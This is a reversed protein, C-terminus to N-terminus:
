GALRRRVPLSIYENASALLKRSCSSEVASVIVFKNLGRLALSLEAYRHDGSCILFTDGSRHAAIVQDVLRYDCDKGESRLVRYGSRVFAAVFHAPLGDNVLAYASVLVGKSRGINLLEQYNPVFENGLCYQASKFLNPTDAFVLERKRRTGMIQSPKSQSLASLPASKANPSSPPGQCVLKAAGNHPPRALLISAPTIDTPLM